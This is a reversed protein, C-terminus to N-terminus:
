DCHLMIYYVVKTEMWNNHRVTNNSDSDQLQYIFDQSLLRIHASYDVSM